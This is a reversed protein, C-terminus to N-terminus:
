TATNGSEEARSRDDESGSTRYHFILGAVGKGLVIRDGDRLPHPSNPPLPQGNLRTGNVSGLDTLIYAGAKFEIRAHRRSVTREPDYPQLNIDVFLGRKPDNRGLTIVNKDLPYTEGTELQLYASPGRARPARRPEDSQRLRLIYGDLVALDGLTASAPVRVEGRTADVVFLAYRGEPLGLAQTLAKVLARAPVDLPLALDEHQDELYELTVAVHPM